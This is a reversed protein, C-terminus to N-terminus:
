EVKVSRPMTGAVEPGLADGFDLDTLKGESNQKEQIQQLRATLAALAIARRREADQLSSGPLPKIVPDQPDRSDDKGANGESTVVLIRQTAEDRLTDSHYASQADNFAAAVDTGLGIARAMPFLASSVAFAVARLPTPFFLFHFAFAPSPDGHYTQGPTVTEFYRLFFWVGWMAFALPMTVGGFFVDEGGIDMETPAPTELLLDVAVAICLLLMPCHRVRLKDAFDQSIACESSDFQFRLIVIIMSAPLFGCFSEYLWFRGFRYGVAGVVLTGLAIAVCGVVVARLIRSAGLRQEVVRGWSQVITVNAIGLLLKDEVFLHTFISWLRMHSLFIEAPILSFIRVFSPAIFQMLFGVVVGVTCLDSLPTGRRHLLQMKLGCAIRCLLCLSFVSPFRM